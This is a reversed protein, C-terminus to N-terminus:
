ATRRVRTMFEDFAVHGTTDWMQLVPPPLLTRQEETMQALVLGIVLWVKDGTFHGMAHGPLAHWEDASLNVSALPCLEAEEERFHADLAAELRSLASLYAAATAPGPAAAWGDLSTGTQERLRHIEDHQSEMRDLVAAAPASRERLVSFVVADEGGHHADLFRLVNDFYSHVDAAHATDGAHVGEVIPRATSLATRFLGHPIAMDSTDTRYAATQTM